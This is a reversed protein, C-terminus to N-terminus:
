VSCHLLCLSCNSHHYRYQLQQGTATTSSAPFAHQSIILWDLTDLSYQTTWLVDLSCYTLLYPSYRNNSYKHCHGALPQRPAQPSLM